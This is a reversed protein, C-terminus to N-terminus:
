NDEEWPALLELIDEWTLGGAAERAAAIAADEPSLYALRLQQLAADYQAPSLGATAPDSLFEMRGEQYAQWNELREQTQGDLETLRRAEEEGYLAVRRRYLEDGEGVAVDRQQAKLNALEAERADGPDSWAIGQLSEPLAANLAALERARQQPRLGAEAYLASVALAYEAALEDEAFLTSGVGFIEERAGRMREYKEAPTLAGVFFDPRHLRDSLQLFSVFAARIRAGQEPPYNAALWQDFAALMELRSTGRWAGVFERFLSLFTPPLEEGPALAIPAFREISPAPPKPERVPPPSVPPAVTSVAPAELEPVHPARFLYQGVAVLVGVVIMAAVAVSRRSM